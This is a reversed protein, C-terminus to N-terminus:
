TGKRGEEKGRRGGVGCEGSKIGGCDIGRRGIGWM